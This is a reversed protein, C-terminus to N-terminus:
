QRQLEHEAETKLAKQEMEKVYPGKAYALDAKARQLKDKALKKMTAGLEPDLTGRNLCQNITNMRREYPKNLPHNASLERAARGRSAAIVRCKRGKPDDPCIDGCYMTPRANTTLFWRGCIACRKPAHGVSLGEFFDTRLMGGLSLFHMHKQMQWRHNRVNEGATYQVTVNMASMWSDSDDGLRIQEPFSNNFQKLYTEKTRQISRADLKEAFPILHQQLQTVATYFHALCPTLIQLEITPGYKKIAEDDIQRQLLANRYEQLNNVAETSYILDLRQDLETSGLFGFPEYRSIIRLLSHAAKRANDMMAEDAFCFLLAMSAEIQALQNCLPQAAELDEKRINLALCAVTGAPMVADRYQVTDDAYIMTLMASNKNLDM